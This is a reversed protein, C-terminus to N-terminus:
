DTSSRRKRSTVLILLGCHPPEDLLERVAELAAINLQQAEDIVLLVARGSFARRLARLVRRSDGQSAVGAAMAIEKLLQTATMTGSSRVFYARRGNNDNALERRNLECILHKSLYCVAQFPIPACVDQEFPLLHHVGIIKVLLLDSGAIISYEDRLFYRITNPSRDCADAFETPTMGTLDLYQELAKRVLASAPVSAEIEERQAESLRM